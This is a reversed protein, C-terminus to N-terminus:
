SKNLSTEIRFGERLATAITSTCVSSYWHESIIVYQCSTIRFECRSTYFYNARSTYGLSCFHISQDSALLNLLRSVQCAVPHVCNLQLLKNRATLCRCKLLHNLNYMYVNNCEWHSTSNQNKRYFIINHALGAPSPRVSQVVLWLSSSMSWCVQPWSGSLVLM